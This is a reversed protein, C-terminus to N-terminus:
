NNRTAQCGLISFNQIHSLSILLVRVKEVNTALCSGCVVAQKLTFHM